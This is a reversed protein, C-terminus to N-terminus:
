YGGDKTERVELVNSHFPVQKAGSLERYKVTAWKGRYSAANELYELQEAETGTANSEFQDGKGDICIFKARREGTGGGQPVIDLIEYEETIFDKHKLLGDSRKGSKYPADLSRWITGEYGQETLRAHIAMGEELSNVVWSDALRIFPNKHGVREYWAELKLRRAQYPATEDAIDYVTYVLTDSVGQHYKHAASMVANVKTIDPLTLEGDLILDGTQIPMIHAIPERIQDKNGRSWAGEGDTLLRKGDYKPQIVMPFTVKGKEVRDSLKKALQAQVRDNSRLRTQKAVMSAFEAHAQQENTTANSKGVNVPEAYYPDAWVVKSTKGTSTKYWSASTTYFLGDTGRIVHAQWYKTGKSGEAELIPSSKVIAYLWKNITIASM